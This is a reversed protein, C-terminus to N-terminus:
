LLIEFAIRRLEDFDKQFNSKLAGDQRYVLKPPTQMESYPISHLKNWTMDKESWVYVVAHSQFDYSDSKISYKLKFIGQDTFAKEVLSLTMDQQGKSIKEVITETNINRRAM